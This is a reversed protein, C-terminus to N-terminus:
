NRSRVGAAGFHTSRSGRPDCAGMADGEKLALRIYSKEVHPHPKRFGCFTLSKDSKSSAPDYYKSYLIFELVKGLTYGEGELVVEHCNPITTESPTILNEKSQIDESFKEVKRIMVDAAKHVIAMNSFPGVTEIVYDFTDPLTYRKAELLLWDQRASEIEEADMGESKMVKSRKSWEANVQVPDLAAAYSCTSTVNFAGDQEATGIDLKCSMKLEEGGIEESLQPRLRAFDIYDGTMPNPPFIERRAAATLYKDTATNKIQFDETTVYQIVDSDNRKGIEVVHDQIPFDTDVIHIPICSLRQKLLENNMRTTNVEFTARNEEHPTTRFVVTPIESLAIRRLANALSVNIGSLRFRLYNGDQTLGSLVPNM